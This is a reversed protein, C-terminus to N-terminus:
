EASFVASSGDRVGVAHQCDLDGVFFPENSVHEGMSGSFKKHTTFAPDVDCGHGRAGALWTRDGLEIRDNFILVEPHSDGNVVVILALDVANFAATVYPHRNRNFGSLEDGAACAM